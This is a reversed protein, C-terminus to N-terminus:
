RDHILTKVYKVNYPYDPPFMLCDQAYATVLLDSDPDIVEEVGDNDNRVWIKKIGDTSFVFVKHRPNTKDVRELAGGYSMFAAALYMDGIEKM